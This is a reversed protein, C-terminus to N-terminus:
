SAAALTVFANRRRYFTHRRIHAQFTRRSVRFRTAVEELTFLSYNQKEGATDTAM